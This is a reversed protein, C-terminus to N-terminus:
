MTQTIKGITRPRNPDLGRAVTLHYAYLQGPVIEVIPSLWDPVDPPLRLGEDIDLAEDVDSVVLLRAGFEHRLRTLVELQGELAVGSPAVALVAFDPEALALPGHEFDATSYPQVLLQALEQLKLSWERATAYAFGRGLVVGHTRAAHGAGVARAADETTLAAAVLGPVRALDATEHDSAADLATSLLAVALLENTYSKTAATAREPGAQLDIVEDAAQALPSSADNVLAVTLAGQGRAEELVAVIDPSRGSQSIGIVLADRMDPRAGYLTVTSPAALAVTLSNRIAFLYQAYLAANDSTGRAAILVFRPRREGLAATVGAYAGPAADLLRALAQPQEHIEDRLSM